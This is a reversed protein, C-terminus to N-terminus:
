WNEHEGDRVTGVLSEIGCTERSRLGATARWSNAVKERKRFGNREHHVPGIAIVCLCCQNQLGDTDHTDEGDRTNRVRISM